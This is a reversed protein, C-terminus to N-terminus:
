TPDTGGTCFHRAEDANGAEGVVRFDDKELFARLGARVVSHDDVLLIRVTETSAEGRNTSDARREM